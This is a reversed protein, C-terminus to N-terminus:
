ELPPNCNVFLDLCVLSFSGPGVFKCFPGLFLLVFILRTRRWRSSRQEFDQGSDGDGPVCWKPHHSRPVGPRFLQIAEADAVHRSTSFCGVLQPQPPGGKPWSSCPCPLKPQRLDGVSSSGHVRAAKIGQLV